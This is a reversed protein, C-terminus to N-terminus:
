EVLNVLEDDVVDINDATNAVNDTDNDNSIDVAEIDISNDYLYNNNPEFNTIKVGKPLERSKFKESKEQEIEEDKEDEENPTLGLAKKIFFKTEKQVSETEGILM